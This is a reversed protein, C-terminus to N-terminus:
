NSKLMALLLSNNKFTLPLLIPKSNNATLVSLMLFKELRVSQISKRKITAAPGIGGSYYIFEDDIKIRCKTLAGLLILFCASLFIAGVIAPIIANEQIAGIFLLIICTIYCLSFFGLLLTNPKFEVPVKPFSQCKSSRELYQSYMVPAVFLILSVLSLTLIQYNM